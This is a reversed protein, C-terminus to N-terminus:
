DLEQINKITKVITLNAAAAFILSGNKMLAPELTLSPLKRDLVLSRAVVGDVKRLFFIANEKPSTGSLALYDKSIIVPSKTSTELFIQWKVEGKDALKYIGTMNQGYISNFGTIYLNGENDASLTKIVVSMKKTWLSKFNSDLCIIESVRGSSTERIGALYIKNGSIVPSSIIRLNEFGTKQLFTGDKGIYYLSDTEGFKNQTVPVIVAGNEKGAFTSTIYNSFVKKWIVKGKFDTKVITGNSGASVIGDPLALLDSFTETMDQKDTIPYQWRPEGDKDYSYLKGDFGTVYINGLDDACPSSAIKVNDGLNVTWKVNNNLVKHLSGNYGPIILTQYDLILPPLVAGYSDENLTIEKYNETILSINPYFNNRYFNGYKNSLNYNEEKSCSSLLAFIIISLVITKRLM